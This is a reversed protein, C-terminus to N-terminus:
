RISQILSKAVLYWGDAMVFILIKLPLSVMMPPIMMMGLSMLISAVVMDIILFAIFLAFGMEFGTKLESLAFAPILAMTPIDKRSKPHPLKSAEMILAIDKQRTQRFMFERMPNMANNFAQSQSIKKEVYPKYANQHIETIVPSMTIFTLFLAFSILVQNPPIMQTGIAQRVFSLVIIIRTFSTLLMLIAPALSLVTLIMVIQLSAALDQPNQSSSVGLSVKPIAVAAAWSNGKVIFLLSVLATSIKKLTKM